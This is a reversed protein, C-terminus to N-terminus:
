NLYFIKFILFCKLKKITLHHLNLKITLGFKLDISSVSLLLIKIKLVNLAVFDPDRKQTIPLSKKESTNQFNIKLNKWIDSLVKFQGVGKMQFITFVFIRFKRKFFKLKKEQAYIGTKFTLIHNQRNARHQNRFLTLFNKRKIYSKKSIRNISLM